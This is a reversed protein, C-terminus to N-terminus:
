RIDAPGAFWRCCALRAPRLWSICEFVKRAPFLVSQPRLRSLTFNFKDDELANKTVFSESLSSRSREERGKRNFIKRRVFRTSQVLVHGAMVFMLPEIPYRYKEFVYSFYYAAPYIALVVLYALGDRKGELLALALGCWVLLSIIPWYAGTIRPVTWFAVVRGESQQLFSGFNSRIYEAVARKKSAVYAMEGVRQYEQTALLPHSEFGLNGYYLEAAYNSRVFVPKGFVQYNRVLWPSVVAAMVALAFAVQKWVRRGRKRERYWFLMWLFPLPAILAPNVLLVVGWFAGTMGWRQYNFSEEWKLFLLFGFSLLLGSLCTDWVLLTLVANSFSTAWLWGATAGTSTGFSREGLACVVLSTLAAFLANLVILFYTSAASYAGLVRFTSAVVMVPYFPAIWATPQKADYPSAFGKGELVAVAVAGPESVSWFRALPISELMHLCLGVRLLFAFAFIAVRSRFWFALKAGGGDRGAAVDSLPAFM